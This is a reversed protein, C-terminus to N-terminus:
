PTNDEIFQVVAERNNLINIPEVDNKTSYLYISNDGLRDEIYFYENVPYYNIVLGSGMTCYNYQFDLFKVYVSDSLGYAEDSLLESLETIQENSYAERIKNDIAETDEGSLKIIEDISITCSDIYEKLEELGDVRYCYDDIIIGAECFKYEITDAPILPSFYISFTDTNDEPKGIREKIIINGLLFYIDDYKQGTGVYISNLREYDYGYYDYVSMMYDNKNIRKYEPLDSINKNKYKNTNTLYIAFFVAILFIVSFIILYLQKKKKM